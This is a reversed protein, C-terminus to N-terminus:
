YLVAWEPVAGPSICAPYDGTIMWYYGAIGGFLFPLALCEALVCDIIGPIYTNCYHM